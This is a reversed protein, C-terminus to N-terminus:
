SPAVTERNIEVHHYEKRSHRESAEVVAQREEHYEWGCDNCFAKWAM